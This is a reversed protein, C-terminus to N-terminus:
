QVNLVRFQGHKAEALVTLHHHHPFHGSKIHFQYLIDHHGIKNAWVKEIHANELQKEFHHFHKKIEHHFHGWHTNVDGDIDIEVYM